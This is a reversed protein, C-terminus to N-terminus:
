TSVGISPSAALEDHATVPFPNESSNSSFIQDLLGFLSDADVSSDVVGDGHFGLNSWDFNSEDSIAIRKVNEIAANNSAFLRKVLECVYEDDGAFVLTHPVQRKLVLQLALKDRVVKGLYRNDSQELSQRLFQARNANTDFVVFQGAVSQTRREVLEALEFGELVKLVESTEWGLAKTLTPVDSPESLSNLVKMHKASLGARDLNQGRIARRAFVTANDEDSLEGCDGNAGEVLLALLSIDLPLNRHLNNAEGGLEFRFEKLPQTFVLRVLQAAQFRLLKTMLRPDLVKQDLLQVFGDVEACSRGSITM